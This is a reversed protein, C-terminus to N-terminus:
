LLRILAFILLVSLSLQIFSYIFTPSYAMAGTFSAMISPLNFALWALSKLNTAAMNILSVLTDICSAFFELIANM